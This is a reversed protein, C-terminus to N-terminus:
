PNVPLEIVVKGKVHGGKLYSLAMLTEDFPFVRDIVPKLKGEDLLAAIDALRTGDPHVFLFAYRVDRRAALKKIKRSMMWFIAKIVPNLRKRRAFAIDLPGVLSVIQGGPKLIEVAKEIGDGRVTGLVMDYDKLITEFYQSKYDIVHQAGLSIVLDANGSSTTTAVSAGLHRALQIAFTGIGGSGAPIFIKHGAHVGAREFAQWATLAVMPLSAAETFSLTEPKLAAASEPVATYEALSGKNMDFVSAYVADGARFRTVKSGAQVVTGALDSGMVAPLTFHLVPRFTGEPIMCDIPNLGVAQIKVLIENEKIAPRPITEFDLRAKKGYSKLVLAKM